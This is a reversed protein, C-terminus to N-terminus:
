ILGAAGLAQLVDQTCNDASLEYTNVFRCDILEPRRVKVPLPAGARYYFVEYVHGLKDAQWRGAAVSRCKAPDVMIGTEEKLERIVAQLSTERRHVGGGPLQWAQRGFWSKALLVQNKSEVIIYARRTRRIFLRVLPLLTVFAWRGLLRM